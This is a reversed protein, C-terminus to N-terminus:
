AFDKGALFGRWTVGGDITVFTLVTDSGAANGIAPAAGGPWKVSKPWSIGHGGTEDQTLILTFSGAKGADPASEFTLTKVDATLTVAFVNAVSLIISLRGGFIKPKALTEAYAKIANRQMRLDGTMPVSGDSKFDDLSLVLLARQDLSDTIAEANTTIQRLPLHGTTFGAKNVCVAGQRNLEVYNIASPYIQLTGAPVVTIATMNRLIGARYGWILGLTTAPDEDFDSFRTGGAAASASVWARRDTVATVASADTTVTYLPIRGPTFGTQNATVNGAPTIEIHNTASAELDIAGAAIDTVTTDNRVRGGHMTFRLGRTRVPNWSFDALKRLGIEGDALHLPPVVWDAGDHAYIRDEDNVWLRVGEIPTWNHWAGAYYHAIDGAAYTAWDAGSAGVPIIYTSGEVPGQPQATTTRSLARVLRGEIQRLAENYVTYDPDQGQIESLALIETSM